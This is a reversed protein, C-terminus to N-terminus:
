QEAAKRFWRAAEAFDQPIGEGTDYFLGLTYQAYANGQEAAKRYWKAAEADNRPLGKGSAYIYGLWAQAQADGEESATGLLKM